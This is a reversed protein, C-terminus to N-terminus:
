GAAPPTWPRVDARLAEPVAPLMQADDVDDHTQPVAAVVGAIGAPHLADAQAGDKLHAVLRLIERGEEIYKAEYHTRAGDPWLGAHPRVDLQPHAHLLREVQRGYAIFDTAFCLRGGPRLLGVVLDVTRRDFLRRRHHRAKPWPDPFYVHVVEAFGRPLVTALLYLAEGRVACANALGRRQIRTGLYKHYKSVLEIGLYRREPHLTAMEKLYRGKGFGIEVEWPGDPANPGLLDDPALPNPLDHLAGADAARMYFPVLRM